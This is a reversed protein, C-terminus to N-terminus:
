STRISVSKDTGIDGDNDGKHLYNVPLGDAPNNLAVLRFRDIHKVAYAVAEAKNTFPGVGYLPEEVYGDDDAMIIMYPRYDKVVEVKM